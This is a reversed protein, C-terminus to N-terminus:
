LAVQKRLLMLETENATPLVQLGRVSDCSENMTSEIGVCLEPYQLDLTYRKENSCSLRLKKLILCFDEGLHFSQQNPYASSTVLFQHTQDQCTALCEKKKGKDLVYRETGIDEMFKDMCLKKQGECAPYPDSIFAAFFSPTCGCERGIKQLSAEFLCNSM